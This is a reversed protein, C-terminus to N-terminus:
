RPRSLPFVPNVLGAEASDVVEVGTIAALNRWRRPVAVASAGPGAVLREVAASTELETAM